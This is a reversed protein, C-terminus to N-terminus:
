QSARTSCPADTLTNAFLRERLDYQILRYQINAALAELGKDQAMSLTSPDLTKSRLAERALSGQGSAEHV